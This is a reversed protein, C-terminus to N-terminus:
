PAPRDGDRTESEFKGTVTLRILEAFARALHVLAFGLGRTAFDLFHGVLLRQNIRKHIARDLTSPAPPVPLDALQEFLDSAM